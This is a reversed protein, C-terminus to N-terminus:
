GVFGSPEPLWDDGDGDIPTDPQTPDQVDDTHTDNGDGANPAM